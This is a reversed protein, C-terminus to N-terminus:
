CQGSREPELNGTLCGTAKAGVKDIQAVIGDATLGLNVPVAIGGLNVIALYGIM